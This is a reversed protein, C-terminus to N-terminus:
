WPSRASPPLPGASGSILSTVRCNRVGVDGSAPEGEALVIEAELIEESETDHRYRSSTAYSEIAPTPDPQTNSAWNSLDSFVGEFFRMIPDETTPLIKHVQAAVLGAHDLLDQADPSQDDVEAAGQRVRHQRTEM